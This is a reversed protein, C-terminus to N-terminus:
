TASFTLGPGLHAARALRAADPQRPAAHYAAEGRQYGEADSKQAGGPEVGLLLESQRVQGPIVGIRDAHPELQAEESDARFDDFRGVERQTLLWLKTEM